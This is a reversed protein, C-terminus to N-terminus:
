RNQTPISITPVNVMQNFTISANIDKKRTFVEAGDPDYGTVSFGTMSRVTVPVCFTISSNGSIIVNPSGATKMAFHMESAYVLSRDGSIGIPGSPIILGQREWSVTVGNAHTQPTVATANAGTTVIRVTALTCPTNANNQITIRLGGTLHDFLLKGNNTTAMAAMPFVVKHASHNNDIYDVALQKLTMTSTGNAGYVVAIDNGGNSMTNPYIAYIPTSPADSSTITAETGNGSITCSENNLNITEGGVWSSAFPSLTVQVKAGSETMPKSFLRFTNNKEKTCGTAVLALLAAITFIKSTKM